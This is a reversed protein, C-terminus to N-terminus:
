LLDKEMGTLWVLTTSTDPPIPSLCYCDPIETWNKMFSTFKQLPFSNHAKGSSFVMEKIFSM